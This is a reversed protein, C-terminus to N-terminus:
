PRAVPIETMKNEPFDPMRNFGLYHRVIFWFTTKPFCVHIAHYCWQGQKTLRYKYEKATKPSCILDHRQLNLIYERISQHTLQTKYRRKVSNVIETQSLPDEDEFVSILYVYILEGKYTTTKLLEEIEKPAKPIKVKRLQEPGYAVSSSLFAYYVLVFLFLVSIM